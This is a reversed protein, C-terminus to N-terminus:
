PQDVTKLFSAIKTQDIMAKKFTDKADFIAYAEDCYKNVWAWTMQQKRGWTVCVPGAPTYGSVYVYHGGWSGPESGPGTTVDWPQGAQVQGQADIPLQLGFGLGVDAYIAQRVETSNTHDVQAFAKIKYVSKGVHWGSHRWETLSDLVVLGTDPGGTEKFYENLVDQNSIMLVSGQEIDEFRLTQHARGAIVCDGHVDNGFMPTPIGTHTSDFDYNAPLAAAMLLSAFKLNRDDKKAPAKGLKFLKHVHIGKAQIGAPTAMFVGGVCTKSQFLEVAFVEETTPSRPLPKTVVVFMSAVFYM